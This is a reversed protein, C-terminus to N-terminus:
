RRPLRRAATWFAPPAAHRATVFLRYFRPVTRERNGRRLVSVVADAVQEPRGVLWRTLPSAELDTQPFGETSVFGPNLQTVTVGRRRWDLGVAETFGVLAFKSAAYAPNGLGLKGAVSAVNVVRSPASAKLLEAFAAMCRVVGFFNVDMTRYVEELHEGGRFRRGSTVGANNVLAHCAGFDGKVGNALRGVDEASTVDARYAHIAPNEGALARLRQERRAVAIVTMGARALARATAEGIGSSAGTVVAVKGDLEM